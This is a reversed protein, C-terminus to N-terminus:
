HCLLVPLPAHRLIHRTAGGLIWESFRGRGYMGMVLMDANMATCEDLLRAGATDSDASFDRSEFGIGHRRLFGGLDFAPKWDIASASGRQEGVLVLVRSARKLLPLAACLARTAEPSGNWAFAICDLTVRDVAQAPVVVAPLAAAFILSAIDSAAGWPFDADHGLVFLDHWLGIDAMANTLYAEAVHWAANEVGASRAWEVFADGFRRGDAAAAEAHALVTSVLDPSSFRPIAQVLSPHVYTGTVAAGVKAALRVGFEISSTRRRCQSTNILINQM